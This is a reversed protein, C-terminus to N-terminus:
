YYLKGFDVNNIGLGKERMIQLADSPRGLYYRIANVPYVYWAEGHDEVQLLMRGKYKSSIATSLNLPNGNIPNYGNLIDVRDSDRKGDTNALNKNTKIADEFINPLGDKDSDEGSMNTIGYPIKDLEKSSIGVGQERMIKFAHTPRCLFYVYQKLPHVYFAEGNEEVKLIIKGKLKNYINIDKILVPNITYKSDCNSNNKPPATITTNELIIPSSTAQVITVDTSNNNIILATNNETTVSTEIDASNISKVIGTTVGVFDAGAFALTAHGQKADSKVDGVIRIRNKTNKAFAQSLGYFDIVEGLYDESNIARGLRIDGYYARLNTFKNEFGVQKLGIWTLTANESGMIELNFRLIEVDK